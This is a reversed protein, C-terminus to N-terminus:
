KFALFSIGFFPHVPDLEKLSIALQESSIYM